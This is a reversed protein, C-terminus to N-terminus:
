DHKVGKGDLKSQLIEIHIYLRTIEDDKKELEKAYLKRLISLNSEMLDLYNQYTMDSNM